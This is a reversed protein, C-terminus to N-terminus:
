GIGGSADSQLRQERWDDELLGYFSLDAWNGQSDRTQSRQVGELQMGLKKMLGVSKVGDIAEAFIKHAQLTGFAYDILARCAEYAYGQRWFRCNFIWGMEYVGPDLENFLLYGIMKGSDKHVAAAAGKRGICFTELFAQTKAFDYAPECNAMTEEDGFIEHLDAADEPAFDRILMRGTEIRM